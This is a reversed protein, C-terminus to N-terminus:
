CILFKRIDGYHSSNIYEIINMQYWSLEKYIKIVAEAFKDENPEIVLGLRYHQVIEAGVGVNETVIVPIVYQLYDFLKAPLTNRTYSYKSTIPNIGCFCDSIDEGLKDRRLFGMFKVHDDVQYMQALKHLFKSKQNYDGVIKLGVDLEKRIISLSKLALELGSDERVTGIFLINKKDGNPKMQLRKIKLRPTFVTEKRSIAKGWYKYRLEVQNKTNNLTIDSLRCAWYDFIPFVLDSGFWSWLGARVKSGALWDGPMYIMKKVLNCRRLIGVISAVYTNEVLVVKVRYKLCISLFLKFIRFHDIIFLFPYIYYDLRPKNLRIFLLKKRKIKFNLPKYDFWIGNKNFMLVISNPSYSIIDEKFCDSDFSEVKYALIDLEHM